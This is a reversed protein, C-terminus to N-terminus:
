RAAPAPTAPAPVRRGIRRWVEFDMPEFITDGLQGPRPVMHDVEGSAIPLPIARPYAACRAYRYHACNFCSLWEDFHASPKWDPM